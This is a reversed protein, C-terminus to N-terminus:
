PPCERRASEGPMQHRGRDLVRRNELSGTREPVQTDIHREDSWLRVSMDVGPVDGRRDARVGRQDRHHMRVVLRPGNLRNLLDDLDGPGGADGNVDIGHM